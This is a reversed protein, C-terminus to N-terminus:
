GRRRGRQRSEHEPAAALRGAPIVSCRSLPQAAACRAAGAPPLPVAPRPRGTRRSRRRPPQRAVSRSRRATAPVGGALRVALAPPAAPSATAATAAPLSRPSAAAPLGPRAAPAPAAAASRLPGPSSRRLRVSSTLQNSRVKLKGQQPPAQPPGGRLTEYQQIARQFNVNMNALEAQQDSYKKILANIQGQIAVSSQYLEEVEPNDQLRDGRTTDIKKLIELLKDVLGLSGFVRAEEQAEEQLEGATPEPLAEVYTVPFIGIKGNCAGRWWEKYGRSLVKIVDGREFSLEGPQDTTFTYLARVRTATNPDVAQPEAPAQAQPSTASYSPNGYSPSNYAPTQAPAAVAAAQHQPAPQSSASGRNDNAISGRGGTEKKSLEIVAALEEEERRRRM